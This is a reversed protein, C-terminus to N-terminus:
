LVNCQIQEQIVEPLEGQLAEQQRALQNQVARQYTRVDIADGNVEAPVNGTVGAQDMNGFSIVLSVAIIGIIILAIVGTFRERIIQLM